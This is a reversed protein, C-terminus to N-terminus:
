SRVLTPKRSLATPLEPHGNNVGLGEQDRRRTKVERMGTISKNYDIFWFWTMQILQLRCEANPTVKPTTCDVPKSLSTVDQTWQYLISCFLKVEQFDGVNWRNM